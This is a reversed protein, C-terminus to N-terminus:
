NLMHKIPQILKSIDGAGLTILVDIQKSKLTNILNSSSCIQKKSNSCLELILNSTVGNIPQERAPFIETIILEEALQLADAFEQAFDKTRSFLHPQFVVTMKRNPYLEKTTMLTLLVEKPHHAYDDIFVHELTDFHIDFRRKIGQFLKLSNIINHYDINIILCATIAALSNSLNHMGPMPLEVNAIKNSKLLFADKTLQNIRVDFSIRAGNLSINESVIDADQICSYSYTKIDSNLSFLEEINKELILSGGKKIQKSFQIFVSVIENYNEYVDLHDEDISTIVAIDPNLYLFSRDFEDAEVVLIKEENSFMFNSDYNRSIGGIFSTLNIGSEKLLCSLMASTTTKGHTGAIAITFYDQSIIGLVESRKKLLNGSKLFFAFLSNSTDIAASYIILNNFSNKSFIKPIDNSNESYFITAGEKELKSTLETKVKDYGYVNKNKSIFFRALASVGIGGIGILYINDFSNINTM